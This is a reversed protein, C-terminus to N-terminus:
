LCPFLSRPSIQTHASNCFIPPRQLEPVTVASMFFEMRNLISIVLGWRPIREYLSEDMKLMCVWHHATLRTCAAMRPSCWNGPIQVIEEHSIKFLGMLSETRNNGAFSQPTNGYTLIAFLTAAASILSQVVRGEM